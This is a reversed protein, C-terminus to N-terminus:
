RHAGRGIVRRIQRSFDPAEAYVQARGNIWYRRRAEEISVDEGLLGLDKVLEDAYGPLVLKWSNPVLGPAIMNVHDRLKSTCNNTLTNYFEPEDHLADAKELMSVFLERVKERSAKIPYLYVDDPRYVARTLLLDREDGIVYIIEYKKFLGKVTSYGEGVEKRAEVSIAVYDGGDFGFSLLSHAPGRREAENFVAIGLWVTALSDLDFTRDYYGVIFSDASVYRFNRIGTIHVRNGDFVASPLRAHETKWNRDNSPRVFSFAVAAVLLAAALGGGVRLAIRGAKM